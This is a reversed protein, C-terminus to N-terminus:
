NIRNLTAATEQSAGDDNAAIAYASGRITALDELLAVRQRWLPLAQAHDHAAGLQVDVLGILDEVEVAAMLDRGDQPARAAVAAVWRELTQSRTHLGDLEDAGSPVAAPTASPNAPTSTAVAPTISPQRGDRPLLLALALGAALAAPVITRWVRPRSRKKALALALEPWLDPQPAADPLARLAAALTPDAHPTMTGDRDSM